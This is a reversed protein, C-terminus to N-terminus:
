VAPCAGTSCEASEEMTNEDDITQYKKLIEDIDELSEPSQAKLELYRAESCAEYPPQIYAGKMEKRLFTVAIIDDWYENTLNLAEEWEDEGVYLTCSTNHDVGYRQSNIYGMFQDRFPEDKAAIKAATKVPFLFVIRNSDKKTRDKEWPVGMEMLAKCMPDFNAFRVRRIYYPAFSRHMGCSVTPLLSITGEPKVCTVLLPRPVGMEESYKDAEDNAWKNILKLLNIHNDDNRKWDLTDLMDMEGTRSVGLLRDRKQIEDWEPLSLTVNTQRLGIRTTLRVSKELLELDVEGDKVMAMLNSTTLNCVGKSDLLIEGCPNLGWVNPRRKRAAELNFFGPEGNFKIKEFIQKLKEFSPKSTFAISNNSMTRHDNIGNKWVIEKEIERLQDYEAEEGTIADIWYGIDEKSKANLMEDDEPSFLCIEAARRSGGVVVNAGIINNIDLVSIPRLKGNCNKIVKSIKNFMIELGEHGAAYGGWTKLPTGAPRVLDYNFVIKVNERYNSIINFFERLSQVWGQKSDGVTIRYTACSGQWGLFDTTTDERKVYPYLKNYKEHAIEFNPNLAPINAIDDLYVSFGVGCSCMSLHFVENIDETKLTRTFCCNFCSEPYKDCADTGGIRMTRGAPFAICHYMLEFMLEAEKVLEEYSAPGKYLSLSYEIDRECLEAWTEGKQSYRGVRILDFLVGKHKPKIKKQKYPSLFESSLYKVM